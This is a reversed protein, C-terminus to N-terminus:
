CFEELSHLWRPGALRWSVWLQGVVSLVAQTLGTRAAEREVGGGGGVLNSVGLATPLCIASSTM